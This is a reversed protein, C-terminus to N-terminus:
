KWCFVAASWAAASATAAESDPATIVARPGVVSPAWTVTTVPECNLTLGGTAAGADVPAELGAAAVAVVEVVAVVTAGDVVVVVSADVPSKWPAVAATVGNCGHSGLDHVADPPSPGQRALLRM